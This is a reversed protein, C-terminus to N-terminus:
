GTIRALAQEVADRSTPRVLRAVEVGDRLFVATPWLKVRFSRGLPRGRGDEVKIYTLGPAGSLVPDLHRHASRCFGCWNTGFEIVAPGTIADIEAREPQSEEYGLTDMRGLTALAEWAAGALGGGARASDGEAAVVRM